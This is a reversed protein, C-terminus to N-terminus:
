FINKRALFAIVFRSLMNFLLAMVKGIFSQITLAVTKGTTLYPHSRQVMIFVSCQLFSAKSSHYQLLSKLTGQVALLDFCDIRFSILGSYENFPSISCSFSWYKLWRIPLSSENSFVTISPFISPLLPFPSLLPHSPQIADGAWHVPTQALELLHHLGPFGEISCDYPQLSDSIGSCSFLFMYEMTHRYWIKKIWEETSPCKLKKQARAITFLAHIKKSNHNEGLIYIGLLSIAPDHLLEIKLKKTFIWATRWFLQVLKCAWWYCHLIRKEGYRTWTKNNIYKKSSSWESEHSTIDWQKTKIQMETIILCRKM